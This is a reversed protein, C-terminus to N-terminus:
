KKSKKAAKVILLVVILIISLTALVSSLAWTIERWYLRTRSVAYEGKVSFREEPAVGTATETIQGSGISAVTSDLTKNEIAVTGTSIDSDRATLEAVGMMPMVGGNNEPTTKFFLGSDLSIGISTESQRSSAGLTLFEYRKTGFIGNKVYGKSVYALIVAGSKDAAVPDHLPVTIKGNSDQSANLRYYKTQEGDPNYSYSTTYDPDGYKECVSSSSLATYSYKECTPPLIMQLVSLESISSDGTFTVESLPSETNNSLTVRAYVIAEDNKRFTVSYAHKQGFLLGDSAAHAPLSALFTLPLVLASLFSLIRKM